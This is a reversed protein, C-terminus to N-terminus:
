KVIRPATYAQVCSELNNYKRSGDPKRSTRGKRNRTVTGARGEFAGVNDRTVNYNTTWEGYSFTYNASKGGALLSSLEAKSLAM